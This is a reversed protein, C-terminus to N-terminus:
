AVGAAADAPAARQEVPADHHGGPRSMEGGMGPDNGAAPVVRLCDMWQESAAVFQAALKAEVANGPALAAIQAIVAHDRKLLAEAGEDPPPPLTLRLTRILHWYADAPLLFDLPIPQTSDFM